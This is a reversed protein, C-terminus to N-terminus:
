LEGHPVNSKKRQRRDPSVTTEWYCSATVVM